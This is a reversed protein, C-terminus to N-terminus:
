LSRAGGRAPRVVLVSADDRQRRHDRYVTAAIAAPSHAALGPYDDPKFHTSIGDSHVVLLADETWPLTFEQARRFEHGLTGNHSVFRRAGGAHFLAASINGVGCYTLQGAALDISLALAAAGRTHRLGDHLREIQRGPPQTRALELFLGSAAESAAAANRGHGLGDTVLASLMLPSRLLTIADGCVWEGPYPVALAALDLGLRPVGTERREAGVTAVVVTGREAISYVDLSRSARSVGGLGTGASGATSYGDELCRRVDPMGRGKDIAIIDLHPDAADMTDPQVLIAGGGGHKVLNTALETAVLAAQGIEVETLGLETACAGAARRAEAVQSSDSVTVARAVDV